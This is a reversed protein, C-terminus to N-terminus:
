KYLEDSDGLDKTGYNIFDDRTAYRPDDIELQLNRPSDRLYWDIYKEKEYPPLIEVMLEVFRHVIEEAIIEALSRKPITSM